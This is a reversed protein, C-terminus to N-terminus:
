WFEFIRPAARKWGNKVFIDAVWDLADGKLKPSMEWAGGWWFLSPNGHGFSYCRVFQDLHHAKQENQDFTARVEAYAAALARYARRNVQISRHFFSPFFYSYLNLDVNHMNRIEWEKTPKGSWFDLDFTGYVSEAERM